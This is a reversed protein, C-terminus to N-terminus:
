EPAQWKSSKTRIIVPVRQDTMFSRLVSVLNDPAKLGFDSVLTSEPESGVGTVTDSWIMRGSEPDAWGVPIGKLEAELNKRIKEQYKDRSLKTIQGQEDQITMEGTDEDFGIPRRWDWPIVTDMLEKTFMGSATTDHVLLVNRIRFDEKPYKTSRPMSSRQPLSPREGTM